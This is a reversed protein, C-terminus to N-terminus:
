PPNRNIPQIVLIAVLVNHRQRTHREPAIPISVTTARKMKIDFLSYIGTFAFKNIIMFGYAHWHKPGPVALVGFVTNPPRHEPSLDRFSPRGPEFTSIEPFSYSIGLVKQILKRVQGIPEFKFSFYLDYHDAAREGLALM